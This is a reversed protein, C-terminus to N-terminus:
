VITISSVQVIIMSIFLVISSVDTTSSVQVIKMLISLLISNFM